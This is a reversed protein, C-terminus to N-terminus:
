QDENLKAVPSIVVSLCRIFPGISLRYLRAWLGPQVATVSIETRPETGPAAWGKAAVVGVVQSDNRFAIKSLADMVLKEFNDVDGDRQRIPADFKCGAPRALFVRITLILSGADDRTVGAARAAWQVATMHAKAEGDTFSHVYPTTTLAGTKRNLRKFERIERGARKWAVPRGSVYFLKM